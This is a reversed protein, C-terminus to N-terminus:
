HCESVDNMYKRFYGDMNGSAQALRPGDTFVAGVQKGKLKLFTSIM